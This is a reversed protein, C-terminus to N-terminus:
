SQCLIGVLKRTEGNYYDKSSLINRNPRQLKIIKIANQACKITIGTKDFKIIESNRSKSDDEVVISEYAKIEEGLLNFVVTPWGSFARIYNYVEEATKNFDIILDEKKINKAFTVQSEDQVEGNNKGAIIDPLASVLLRGGIIGLKEQLSLSTDERSIECKEKAYMVGADMAKVMEMITVGTTEDGNMIAYQIPSGGRYKPLLSGHVNIAKIKALNLVEPSLIQGYSATILLDPNIDALPKYDTSLKEPQHIPIKHNLAFQKVDNYIYNGKRDKAKDSQTVILDIEYCKILEELVLLSFRSSGLFVIHLKDM